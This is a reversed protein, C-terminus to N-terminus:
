PDPRRLASALYLCRRVFLPMRRGLVLQKARRLRRVLRPSPAPVTGAVGRHREVAFPFHGLLAPAFTPCAAAARPGRDRLIAELSLVAAAPSFRSELCIRAFAGLRVRADRDAVLAALAEALAGPRVPVLRGSVGDIVASTLGATRYALTPVGCLGAEIPTQGLTEHRSATVHLDCAGYWVALAEEDAILGPAFVNPVGLRAPDDLRGIAVVGVGPRAVAALAARLDAFGKDPGDVIVASVLILVDDVPLGLRRRLARRDGPRFVATPFALQIRAMKTGPPALAAAQACTWDSNALLWPGAAEALVARKRAHLGAIRDPALQPYEDPGPCAADCGAAARTCARPHCCRGTLPFLDHLVLAVPGSRALRGVVDLSRTAGHLNGALVLDPAAAAVAAEARPFADTWEAAEPRGSLTVATIRHGALALADALRRHAVGAGGQTGTGTLAVISLGPGPPTALAPQRRLLVPRGIRRRGAEPLRAWASAADLGIGTEHVALAPVATRAWLVAGGSLSTAGPNGGDVLAPVDLGHVTGDFLVRLGAVASAGTLAAELALATLAGPALLDGADLWLLHDAACDTLIRAVAAHGAGPAVLDHRAEPYDQRLVSAV